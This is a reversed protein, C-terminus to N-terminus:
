YVKCPAFPFGSQIKILFKDMPAEKNTKIVIQYSGDDNKDWYVLEFSSNKIARKVDNCANKYRENFYTM